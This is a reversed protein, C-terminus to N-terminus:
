QMTSVVLGDGTQEAQRLCDQIMIGYIRLLNQRAGPEVSSIAEASVAALANMAVEVDYKTATWRLKRQCERIKEVNAAM